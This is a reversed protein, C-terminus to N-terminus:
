GEGLGFLPVPVGHEDAVGRPAGGGRRRTQRESVMLFTAPVAAAATIGLAWWFTNGFARALTTRAPPRGGAATTADLINHSLIVALIATGVSGGVRQIVNLQPSADHIEDPRLVAFAAAMSPMMSSGVGIGRAVLTISIWVYSTHAGIFVLPLTFLSTIIVGGLAVIGGGMRDVLRGTIGMAIAVGIGQPILLLGTVVPDTGRVNQFYLPLLIMGGFIAAGLCFTAVSAAVFTPKQYLRIDLLPATVRRAHWAFGAILALGGVLSVVWRLTSGSQIEALGYIAAPLGVALLVLGTVDLRGAPEPRDTPLFRVAVIVAVIGVPINVYFIWHWNLHELLLGGVTPGIIPALVTPIGVMSMARGIRRPGAARALATQGVPLILGGGIGQLVRFAILSTTSWALGCLASGLTFLVISAIYLRKTGFRRTAWGSIPIVAALALLYATVVWQISDLSTHLDISLTNLAVNVITTDLVSMISGLVVACGIRVIARDLQDGGAASTEPPPSMTADRYHGRGLAGIPAVELQNAPSPGRNVM